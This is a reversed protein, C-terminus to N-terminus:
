GEGGTFFHVSARLSDYGLNPPLSIREQWSETTTLENQLVNAYLDNSDMILKVEGIPTVAMDFPQTRQPRVANEIYDQDVWVVQNNTDYYTVLLHPITAEQTGSNLLQGSLHIKGDAGYGVQLQQIGVDRFLDRGTVVGKAYVAFSAVPRALKVPSFAGPKFDGATAKDDLVTGAVGEFDVRFPTVEKPFIKHIMGGQANYTTLTNGQDDFLSSTVTVDAPNVDTNILEGVVSYRDDHKVLRASLVQLQPRDLVDNFATPGTTIQRRGQSYWAIEGKRFFQDPPVAADTQDPTIYWDGNRKVLVHRQVTPYDNLATVWDTDAELVVRDPESSLVQVKVSDLKGYSAVLGNKVSLELLYQSYEPRVQPDLRAYASGFRRFDLDDYYAKVVAVPDRAQELFNYVGGAIVVFGFCMLLGTRVQQATPSAPKPRPLRRLWELWVQWPLGQSEEGEPLQSWGLMRRDLWGWFRRGWRKFPLWGWPLRRLLGPLGLFGFLRGVRPGWISSSIALLAAIIAAMPVIGWMVRQYIPIEKRPLVEPLPPIDEREWVMIGNELRQLRHWGSFYLLPDYFQDNSFIFKLNYKEPVALFQQLSGIGAIGRFKAGELREVSTTTMEPLRRVSHYNGDV